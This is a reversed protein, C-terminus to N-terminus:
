RERKVTRTKRERKGKPKEERKGKRRERKRAIEKPKEEEKKTEAEEKKEAEKVELEKLYKEKGEIVANAILSCILKIARIADDNSPIPYDLFDPDCNTDIMAVVPIELRNAEAVAIKEKKTDVVFIVGPLKEMKKVGGLATELKERERELELVEKKPLLLFTGDKEMKELEKLRNISKHITHFNTLMGGWWRETVYFMGCRQAEEKIVDKAQKKTGVFLISEREEVKQRILAYAEEIRKVTQALDIIHIGNREDFIFKKMKPNWRKVQHGFHVGAELLERITIVSM